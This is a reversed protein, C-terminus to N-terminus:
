VPLLAAAVRRGESLLVNYTRCAAPSNMTEVGLGADELRARLDRPIHTMEAGTGIFIVDVEGVLALLTAADEYGGWGRAGTLTVCIAGELVQGAVRFFGPGYGDIPTAGGFSIETMRM